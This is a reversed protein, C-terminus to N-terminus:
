RTVDRLLKAVAEHGCREALELPTECDDIRTRLAPNARRALLLRVARVDGDSAAWHLPTYDNHGRQNPDAGFDLLLTLLAHVDTDRGGHGLAPSPKSSLAAILSPFGDGDDYNPDAGLELLTRVFSLPSHYIADHLPSCRLGWPGYSNPFAAPDDAMERLVDADGDRFAAAARAHRRAEACRREEDRIRAGSASM